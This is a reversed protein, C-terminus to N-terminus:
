TERESDFPADRGKCGVCSEGCAEVADDADLGRAIFMKEDAPKKGLKESKRWKTNCVRRAKNPGICKSLATECRDLFRSKNEGTEPWLELVTQRSGKEILGDFVARRASAPGLSKALMDAMASGVAESQIGREIEFMTNLMETVDGQRILGARRRQENLARRRMDEKALRDAELDAEAARRYTGVVDKMERLDRAVQAAAREEVSQERVAAITEQARAKAERWERQIDAQTREGIIEGEIVPGDDFLYIVDRQPRTM